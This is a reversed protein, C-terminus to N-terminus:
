NSPDCTKHRGRETGERSGDEYGDLGGVVSGSKNEVRGFKAGFTRVRGRGRETSVSNVFDPHTRLRRAVSM